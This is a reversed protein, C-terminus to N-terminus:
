KDVTESMYHVGVSAKNEDEELLRKIPEKGKYKYLCPHVNICGLKPHDLIEKTLIEKGHVCVLLDSKKM